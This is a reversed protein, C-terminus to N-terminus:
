TLVADGSTEPFFGTVLFDTFGAEVAAAGTDLVNIFQQSPIFAHNYFGAYLLQLGDVFLANDIQLRSSPTFGAAGLKLTFMDSAVANLDMQVTAGNAPRAALSAQLNSMDTPLQNFAASVQAASPVERSELCELVPRFSPRERRGSKPSRIPLANM